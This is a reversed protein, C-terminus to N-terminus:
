PCAKRLPMASPQRRTKSSRRGSWDTTCRPIAPTSPSRFATWSPKMFSKATERSTDTVILLVDNPLKEAELASRICSVIAKNSNIADSGGRLICANGSKFCLAFADATVNPRAEYIIGVVGMPVTIRDIQLGNPRIFNEVIEGIPDKLESVEIIGKAMGEIREKTLMLRDILSEKLGKERANQVDISNAAIIEATNKQLADAAARLGLNKSAPDLHALVESARKARVGLSELYDM